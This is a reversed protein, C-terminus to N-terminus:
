EYRIGRKTKESIKLKYNSSYLFEEYYGKQVQQWVIFGVYNMCGLIIVGFEDQPHDGFPKSVIVNKTKTVHEIKTM